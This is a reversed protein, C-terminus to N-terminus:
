SFYKKFQDIIKTFTEAIKQLLNKNKSQSQPIEITNPKKSYLYNIQTNDLKKMGKSKAYDEIKKLNIKQELETKLRIQESTQLELQNKTTNIKQTIENTKVLNFIFASLFLSTMIILFIYLKTQIFKKTSQVRGVHQEEFLAHQRLHNTKHKSYALNTKFKM